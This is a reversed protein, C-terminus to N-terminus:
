IKNTRLVRVKWTNGTFDVICELSTFFMFMFDFFEYASSTFVPKKLFDSVQMNDFDLCECPSLEFDIGDEEIDEEATSVLVSIYGQTGEKCIEIRLPKERSVFSAALFEDLNITHIEKKERPEENM